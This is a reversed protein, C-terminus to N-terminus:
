ALQLTSLTIFLLVITENRDMLFGYRAVLNGLNGMSAM